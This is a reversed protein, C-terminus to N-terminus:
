AIAGLRAVVFGIIFEQGKQLGELGLLSHRATLGVRDAFVDTKLLSIAPAEKSSSM